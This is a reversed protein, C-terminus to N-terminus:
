DNQWNASGSTLALFHSYILLLPRCLTECDILLVIASRPQVTRSATKAKVDETKPWSILTSTALANTHPSSEGKPAIEEIM